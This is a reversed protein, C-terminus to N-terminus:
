MNNNYFSVFIFTILYIFVACIGLVLPYTFVTKEGEFGFERVEGERHFMLKPKIYYLLAAIVLFLAVAIIVPSREILIDKM